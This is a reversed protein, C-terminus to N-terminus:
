GRSTHNEPTEQVPAYNDPTNASEPRNLCDSIQPQQSIAGNLLYTFLILDKSLSGEVLEPHVALHQNREHHITLRDFPRVMVPIV